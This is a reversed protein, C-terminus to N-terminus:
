RAGSEAALHLAALSSTCSADIGVSPGTFGFFHSIRNATDSATASIQAQGGGAM